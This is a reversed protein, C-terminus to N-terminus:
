QIFPRSNKGNAVLEQLHAVKHGGQRLEQEVMDKEKM